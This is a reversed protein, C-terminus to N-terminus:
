DQGSWPGISISSHLCFFFELTVVELIFSLSFTKLLLVIHWMGINVKIYFKKGFDIFSHLALLM